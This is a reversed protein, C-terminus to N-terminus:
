FGRPILELVQANRRMEVRSLFSNGLLIENPFDGDIVSGLVNRVVIHGVRIVDFKLEYTKVQGGATHASSQKGLKRFKIGLREAAPRSMAILTAGSDVAFKVPKGDIAGAHRFIGDSGAYLRLPRGKEAPKFTASISRGLAFEQENGDVDLVAGKASARVLKVGAVRTGDQRLLHRKGDIEVLAKNTFLALITIRTAASASSLTLLLAIVLVRVVSGTQV